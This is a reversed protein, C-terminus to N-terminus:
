RSRAQREASRLVAAARRPLTGSPVSFTATVSASGADVDTFSIGTVDTAVDDTVTVSGPATITPADNVPTMSVTSVRNPAATNNSGGNDAIGTITVVRSSSGPNDSANSYALGDVLTQMAANSRTLGSLTVTATGAAAVVSYTGGNTLSGSNGTNLAVSTNDITLTELAGNSVNTVTLTMGTFVQGSDNTAATVSGFLDVASGGETFTPNTGTATLSPSTSPPNTDGSFDDINTGFFDTSSVRVEDVHLSPFSLLGSLGTPMQQASGILNGDRYGAVSVTGGSANDVYLGTFTFDAADNRVITVVEVAGTGGGSLLNVSDSGGSGNGNEWAFDGGDGQSTFTFTFAVGGLNRVFSTVGSGITTAFPDTFSVLLGDYAVPALTSAEVVGHTVELTWNGGRSAAGTSDASAAVDAGTARALADVFPRGAGDAAVACGYLLLDGGPRLAHGITALDARRSAVADSDLLTAGLRVQGVDGHSLVHIARVGHRGVLTSAMQALGDRRGDLVVVEPDGPLADVLTQWARVTDVVFVIERSSDPEPAALLPAPQGLLTLVLSALFISSRTAFGFPVQTPLMM